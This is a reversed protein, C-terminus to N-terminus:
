ESRNLHKRTGHKDYEGHEDDDYGGDDCEEFESDGDSSYRPYPLFPESFSTLMKAFMFYRPQM